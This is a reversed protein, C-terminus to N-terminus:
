AAAKEIKAAKAEEVSIVEASANATRERVLLFAQLAKALEHDGGDTELEKKIMDAVREQLAKAARKGGKKSGKVFEAPSTNFAGDLDCDKKKALEFAQEDSNFTVAGFECAWVRIMGRYNTPVNNYINNLHSVCGHEARHNVAGYSVEHLAVSFTAAKKGIGAIARTLARGKLIKITM